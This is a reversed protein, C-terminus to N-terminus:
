AARSRETRDLGPAILMADGFEHNLYGASRAHEVADELVARPAFAALLEFHSEGPSHVGTVIGDIWRPSLSADLILDTTGRSAALVGGACLAAGEVARAVTTGMAIVRGGRSRARVISEAADAGVEYREALPLAADLVADGTSSLGAAHTVQTLGIARARLSLLARWTLPRGASPMEVSWPRGAFRTQVSWLDLPRTLYSYQVPRAARYLAALLSGRSPVLEVRYLRSSTSLRELIRARLGDFTLEAGVPLRPPAPRDETRLRWDGAGHLVGTFRGQGENPGALRLEVTSGDPAHGALSAPLTAADNLVLLDGPELLEPLATFPHDRHRGTRADVALLRVGDRRPPPATAPSM